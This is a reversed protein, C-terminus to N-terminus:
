SKKIVSFIAIPFMILNTINIGQNDYILSAMFVSATAIYFPGIEGKFILYMFIPNLFQIVIRLAEKDRPTKVISFAIMLAWQIIAIIVLLMKSNM